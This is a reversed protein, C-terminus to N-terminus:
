DSNNIQLEIKELCTQFHKLQTQTKNHQSRLQENEFRLQRVEERLDQPSVIDAETHPSTKVQTMEGPTLIDLDKIIKIGSLNPSPMCGNPNASLDPNPNPKRAVKMIRQYRSLFEAYERNLEQVFEHTAEEDDPGPNMHGFTELLELASRFKSYAAHANCHKRATLMKKHM